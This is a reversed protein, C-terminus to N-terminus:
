RWDRVTIRTWKKAKRKPVVSARLLSFRNKAHAPYIGLRVIYNKKKKKITVSIHPTSHRIFPALYTRHQIKQGNEFISNQDIKKKKKSAM